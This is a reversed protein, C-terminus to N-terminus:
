QSWECRSFYKAYDTQIPPADLDERHKKSKVHRKVTTDGGHHVLNTHIFTVQKKDKWTACQINYKTKNSMTFMRTAKRMCGRSVKELAGLTLICVPVSYENRDKSNFIVVTRIFLWRYTKNLFIVLRINTYWNTTYMIRGKQFSILMISWDIWWMYLQVKKLIQMKILTYRTVLCIDHTHVIYPLCKYVM